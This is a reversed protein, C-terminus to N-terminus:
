KSSLGKEGSVLRICRRGLAIGPKEVITYLVYSALLTIPLSLLIPVITEAQTTLWDLSRSTGILLSFVPVHILYTSYSWRGMKQIISNWAIAKLTLGVFSSSPPTKIFGCEVFVMLLFVGWIIGEIMGCSILVGFLLFYKESAGHQQDHNKQEIDRVILRSLIGVLFYNIALPLFSPQSWKLFGIAKFFVFILLCSLVIPLLGKGADERKFLMYILFPAALYFQWELSLSWAPALFASNSYPLLTDPIAGHLMTIHGWFYPWFNGWQLSHREIRNNVDPLWPASYASMYLQDLFIAAILCFYYVPFIRFGRRLIYISYNERKTILLHAIVFGSIIIFVNVAADGRSLFDYVPGPLYSRGGILYLAHGVVVWWAMWGRLSEIAVFNRGGSGPMLEKWNSTHGIDILWVHLEMPM